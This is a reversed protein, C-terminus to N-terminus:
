LRGVPRVQAATPALRALLRSVTGARLRRRPAVEALPALVFAREAARPHPLTLWRTRAREDGLAILDVDLVRAGWRPGPRRGAAAELIKAEVLLGMARRSTEARVALNLYPRRSPGVPATEFVRSVASVRVGPVRGLARVARRLAARRDGRNSGLLFLATATM